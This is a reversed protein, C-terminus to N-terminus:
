QPKTPLKLHDSSWLFELLHLRRPPLIFRATLRASPRALLAGIATTVLFLALLQVVFSIPVVQAAAKLVTGSYGPVATVMWSQSFRWTNNITFLAVFGAAVCVSLVPVLLLGARRLGPTALAFFAGFAASMISAILVPFAIQPDKLASLLRAARRFTAPDQQAWWSDSLPSYLNGSIVSQNFQSFNFNTANAMAATVRDAEGSKLYWATQAEAIADAAHMRVQEQLQATFGASTAVSAAFVALLLLLWLGIFLAGIRKAWPGLVPYETVPSPTGCEPCFIMLLRYHPEREIPQGELAFGCKFCPRQGAVVGVRTRETTTSTM